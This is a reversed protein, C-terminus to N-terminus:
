EATAETKVLRAPAAEVGIKKAHSAFDAGMEFIARFDSMLCEGFARLVDTQKSLLKQFGEMNRVEAAVKLQSVGLDSYAKLSDIQHAALKEVTTVAEQNLRQVPELMGKTPESLASLTETIM